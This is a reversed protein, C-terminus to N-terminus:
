GPLKPGPMSKPTTAVLCLQVSTRHNSSVAVVNGVKFQKVAALLSEVLCM